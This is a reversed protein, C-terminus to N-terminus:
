PRSLMLRTLEASVLGLQDLSKGVVWYEHTQCVQNVDPVVDVLLGFSELQQILIARSIPSRRYVNVVMVGQPSLIRSIEQLQNVYVRFQFVFIAVVMDVSQDELGTAAFESCFRTLGSAGDSILQVDADLTSYGFPLTAGEYLPRAGAGIEVLHSPAISAVLKRFLRKVEDNAPGISSEYAARARCLALVDPLDLEDLQESRVFFRDMFRHYSLGDHAICRPAELESNWVLVLDDFVFYDGESLDIADAM